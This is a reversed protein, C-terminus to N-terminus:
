ADATAHYAIRTRSRRLEANIRDQDAGIERLLLAALGGAAEAEEFCAATVGIEELWAREGVYHARVFVKLRPNLEKAIIVIVTRAHPDPVTVLLYEASAIGAALLIDRRGADGYVSHEGAESLKIVTDVNLDVVVPTVHFEKLISCAVKGVPGYGVIIARARPSDRGGPLLHPPHIRRLRSEARRSLFKWIAPRRRLWSEAPGISRFLVPNLSITVISLGVLLGQIDPSLLEHESALSALIFSFEGIQAIGVAVTLAARVSYGLFWVITFAVVPSVLLVIGLLGAFMPLNHWTSSPDFLMGVSVFFLVAFADRMPLADSAAQHCVESQAVVMGALFAGLAMSVGFLWASCTAITLALALVTLTFLERVRTRAVQELLRPIVKKGGWLVIVALGVVKVIALGIALLTAATEGGESELASAAAPLMVLVFVTFIDQVILWGVALHGQETEIADNEALLRTLVVTSAVAVAIGVILGAVWDHGAFITVVTGLAAACSAQVLAGPLAVRRVNLLDNLNFHLGVGFMLLIIGIEAFQAASAQDAVFGPTSPGVAIGALLYGVIPSLRMRHTVLGGVLAAVLCMSLKVLIDLEDPM